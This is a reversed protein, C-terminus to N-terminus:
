QHNSKTTNSSATSKLSRFCFFVDISPFRRLIEPFSRVENDYQRLIDNFRKHMEDQITMRTNNKEFKLLMDFASEASRSHLLLSVISTHSVFNGCRKLPNLSSVRRKIMLRKSRNPTTPRSWNGNRWIKSVFHIARLRSVCRVTLKRASCSM